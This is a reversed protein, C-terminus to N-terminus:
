PAAEGADAEFLKHQVRDGVDIGLRHATGGNLELVARVPGQSSYPGPSGPVANEVMSTVRGNADIFLMDLSILTDRMTFHAERVGGLDFLMAADSALTPRGRLGRWLEDQTRMVEAHFLTSTTETPWVAVPETTPGERELRAMGSLVLLTCAMVALRSVLGFRM